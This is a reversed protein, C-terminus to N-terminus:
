REFLEVPVPLYLVLHLMGEIRKKEYFVNCAYNLHICLYNGNHELARNQSAVSLYSVRRVHRTNGASLGGNPHEDCGTTLIEQEIKM